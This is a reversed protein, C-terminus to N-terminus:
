MLRVDTEISFCRLFNEPHDQWHGGVLSYHRFEFFGVRRATRYRGDPGCGLWEVLLAWAKKSDYRLLVLSCRQSVIDEYLREDPIKTLCRPQSNHVQGPAGGSEDSELQQHTSAADPRVAIDMIGYGLDSYATGRLSGNVYDIYAWEARTFRSCLIRSKFCLATPNRKFRSLPTLNRYAKAFEAFAFLKKRGQTCLFDGQQASNGADEFLWDKNGDLDFEIHLGHAQYIAEALTSELYEHYLERSPGDSTWTVNWVRSNAWSWSPFEPSPAVGTGSGARSRWALGCLFSTEALGDEAESQDPVVFPIGIISYVPHDIQQLANAAGRFAHLADSAYTLSRTTYQTVLQTYTCFSELFGRLSVPEFGNCYVGLEGALSSLTTSGVVSQVAGSVQRLRGPLDESPACEVGGWM